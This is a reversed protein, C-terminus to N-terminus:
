KTLFSSIDHGRSIIYSVSFRNRLNPPQSYAVTLHDLNVAEKSLNCIEQLPLIGELESAYTQWLHHIDQPKPDEPYFELRLFVKTFTHPETLTSAPSRGTGQFSHCHCTWRSKPLYTVPFHCHLWLCYTWDPINCTTGHWWWLQLM